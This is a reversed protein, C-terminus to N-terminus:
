RVASCDAGQLALLPERRTVAGGGEGLSTKKKIDPM